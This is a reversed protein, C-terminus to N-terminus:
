WLTQRDRFDAERGVHDVVTCGVCMGVARHTAPHLLFVIFEHLNWGAQEFEIVAQEPWIGSQTASVRRQCASRLIKAFSRNALPTLDGISGAALRNRLCPM